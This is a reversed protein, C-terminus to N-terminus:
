YVWEPLFERPIMGTKILHDADTVPLAYASTQYGGDLALKGQQVAITYRLPPQKTGVVLYGLERLRHDGNIESEWPTLDPTLCDLLLSRRWLAAQFSFHYPSQPNSRILELGNVRGHSVWGSAGLRDGTLDLRALDRHAMLYDTLDDITRQDVRRNLWYDDMMFLIYEDEIRELLKILGNSWKSVPYDVFAGISVFECHTPLDFSPRTYGGIITHPMTPWYRAAQHLMPRLSWSTKDSTIIIPQM